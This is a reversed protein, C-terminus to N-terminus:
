RGMAFDRHQPRGDAELALQDGILVEHDLPLDFARDQVRAAERDAGLTSDLPVDLRTADVDLAGDVLLLHQKAV